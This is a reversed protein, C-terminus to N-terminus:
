CICREPMGMLMVILCGVVVVGMHAVGVVAMAM